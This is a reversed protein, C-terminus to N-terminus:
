DFKYREKKKEREKTANRGDKGGKEKRRGGEEV